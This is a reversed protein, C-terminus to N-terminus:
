RGLVGLIRERNAPATGGAENALEEWTASAAELFAARDEDSFDGLFKVGQEGLKARAAQENEEAAEYANTRAWVSEAATSVAAREAESLGSWADENVGLVYPVGAVPYLYAAYDTVEHLSITHAFLAPYVACDVVGTQLAVYLETQGVIQAPVGLKTFTEVQDGSWVRLKKSRLEELSNVPDGKCFISAQLLPLAMYGAPVIGWEALEEAYIEQIEPLVQILEEPSGVSGQILVANMAPADRGLYNAWVLGMEVAGQPLWRVVDENKLNLSGGHFVNINLSGGTLEAVEAAFTDLQKSENRGEPLGNNFKWEAASAMGASLSLTLAITALHPIGYQM